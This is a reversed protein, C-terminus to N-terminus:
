SVHCRFHVLFFFRPFRRWPGVSQWQQGGGWLFDLLWLFLFNAFCFFFFSLFFSARGNAPRVTRCRRRNAASFRRWVWVGVCVSVCRCVGFLVGDFVLFSELGTAPREVRKDLFFFRWAFPCNSIFFFWFKLFCFFPVPENKKQTLNRDPSGFSSGIVCVCVCVCM